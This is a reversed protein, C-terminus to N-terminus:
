MQVSFFLITTGVPDVKGGVFRKFRFEFCFLISFRCGFIIRDIQISIPPLYWHIRSNEWINIQELQVNSNISGIM